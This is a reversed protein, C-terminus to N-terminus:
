RRGGLEARMVRVEREGPHLVPLETVTIMRTMAGM